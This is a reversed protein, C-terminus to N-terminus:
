SGISRTFYDPIESTWVEGFRRLFACIWYFHSRIDRQRLYTRMCFGFCDDFDFADIEDWSYYVVLATNKDRPKYFLWIVHAM